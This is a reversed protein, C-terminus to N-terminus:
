PRNKKAKEDTAKLLQRYDRTLATAVSQIAPNESLVEKQRTQLL